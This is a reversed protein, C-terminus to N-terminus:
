RKWVIRVLKANKYFDMGNIIKNGTFGILQGIKDCNTNIVDYAQDYYMSGPDIYFVIQNQFLYEKISAEGPVNNIKIQEIQTAICDPIYYEKKCSLTFLCFLLVTYFLKISTNM